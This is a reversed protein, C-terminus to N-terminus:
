YLNLPNASKIVNKGVLQKPEFGKIFTWATKEHSM